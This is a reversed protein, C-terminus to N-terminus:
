PETDAGHRKGGFIVDDMRRWIHDSNDNHERMRAAHAVMEQYHEACTKKGPVVPNECGRRRCVGDPKRIRKAANRQKTKLCNRDLCLRCRTHGEEAARVGCERCLGLAKLRDARRKMREAALKLDRGADYKARKETCVECRCRGAWARRTHCETCIGRAKFFWYAEKVYQRDYENYM